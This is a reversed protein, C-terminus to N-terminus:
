TTGVEIVFEADSTLEKTAFELAGAEQLVILPHFCGLLSHQLTMIGLLEVQKVAELVVDPHGRLEASAHRLAKPDQRCQLQHM